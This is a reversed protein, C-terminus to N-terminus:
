AVVVERRSADGAVFDLLAVGEDHVAGAQARAGDDLLSVRLTAASRGREVRWWGRVFGDVLVMARGLYQTVLADRHEPPMIRERDAHAVLVNDWEPLFRVPAPTDAAPLPAGPLDLLERGAEDAFTRLRPRLREVLDGVGSWGSWAAIDRASAPGFAALYRLAVQDPAAGPDISEGLWSEITALRAPGREGWVGRPPVHVAPVRYSITYALADPDYGPFREALLPRLEARSRPESDILERGAGLLADLDIGELPRAFASGAWAREQVSQTVSRLVLFDRATALHLTARMLPGRVARREEILRSLEDHEFRELRSWLGVYPALPEQAQLGALHEIADAASTARRRLLLQRELLARNLQRTSVETV